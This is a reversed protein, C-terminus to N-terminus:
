ASRADRGLQPAVPFDVETQAVHNFYNTFINKVVNAVIEAIEGDNYDARRVWAVDEDSVWGKKDVIAKAFRLAAEERRDASSAERSRRIQEQSLGVMKGIATHAALCYDCGNIESVTLAIQERLAPSLAGGDLAGFGLYSELVAPSNALTRSLNPTMGYKKQVSDLLEKARGTATQPNVPQMRPM